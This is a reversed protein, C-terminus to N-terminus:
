DEDSKSWSWSKDINMIIKNKAFEKKDTYLFLMDIYYSDKGQLSTAWHSAKCIDNKIKIDDGNIINMDYNWTELYDDDIYKMEIERDIFSSIIKNSSNKFKLFKEYSDEMLNVMIEETNHSLNYYDMIDVYGEGIVTSSFLGYDYYFRECIIGIFDYKKKLYEIHEM